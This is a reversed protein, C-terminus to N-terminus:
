LGHSSGVEDVFEAAALAHALEEDFAVQGVAVRDLLRVRGVGVDPSGGVLRLRELFEVCRHLDDGRDHTDGVPVLGDLDLGLVDDTRKSSPQGTAILPRM